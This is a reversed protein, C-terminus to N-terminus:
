KICCDKKNWKKTQLYVIFGSFLAFKIDRCPSSCFLTEKRMRKNISTKRAVVVIIISVIICSPQRLSLSIFFCQQTKYCRCPISIPSDVFSTSYFHVSVNSAQWYIPLTFFMFPYYFYSRSNIYVTPRIVSEPIVLVCIFLWLYITLSRIRWTLSWHVM